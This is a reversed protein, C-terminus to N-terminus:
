PTQERAVLRERPADQARSRGGLPELQPALLHTRARLHQARPALANPLLELAHALSRIRDRIGRRCLQAGALLTQARQLLLVAGCLSGSALRLLTLELRQALHEFARLLLEVRGFGVVRSREGLAFAGVP